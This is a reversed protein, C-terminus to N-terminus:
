FRSYGVSKYNIKGLGGGNLPFDLFNYPQQNKYTNGFENKEFNKGAISNRMLFEQLYMPRNNEDYNYIMPFRLANDVPIINGDKDRPVPSVYSPSADYQQQIHDILKDLNNTHKASEEPTYKTTPNAPIIQTPINKAVTNIPNLGAEKQTTTKYDKDISIDGLLDTLVQNTETGYIAKSIKPVFEFVPAFEPAIAEAITKAFPVQNIIQSPLALTDLFKNGAYKIGDWVSDWFGNGYIEESKLMDKTLNVIGRHTPNTINVGDLLGIRHRIRHEPKMNSYLAQIQKNAKEKTTGKSMVKGSDKNVVSFKKNKKEKIEYPM